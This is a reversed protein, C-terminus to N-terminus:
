DWPFSQDEHWYGDNYISEDTESIKWSISYCLEDIHHSSNIFLDPLDHFPDDNKHTPRPSASSESTAHDDSSSTPTDEPSSGNNLHSEPLPVLTAAKAAAAQIDKPSKSTPLPLLHAIDPFNLYASHGKIALAAVDHARAAMEATAFTGLWIRSKKRPERIESVWRGWSRKRVGRYIPHKGDDIKNSNNNKGEQENTTENEQDKM